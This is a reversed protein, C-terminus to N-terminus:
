LWHKQDKIDFFLSWTKYIYHYNWNVNGICQKNENMVSDQDDCPNLHSCDATSYYEKCICTGTFIDYKSKTCTKLLLENGDLAQSETGMEYCKGKICLGSSMYYGSACLECNQGKYELTCENCTPGTFKTSCICVGESTKEQTRSQNCEGVSLM